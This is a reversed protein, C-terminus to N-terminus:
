YKLDRNTLLLLKRERIRSGESNRNALIMELRRWHNDEITELLRWYDEDAESRRSEIIEDAIQWSATPWAPWSVWKRRCFCSANWTPPLNTWTWTRSTAHRTRVTRRWSRAAPRNRNRGICIASRRGTPRSRSCSGSRLSTTWVSSAWRGITWRTMPPDSAKAASSDNTWPRDTNATAPTRNLAPPNSSIIAYFRHSRRQNSAWQGSPSRRSTSQGGCKVPHFVAALCM